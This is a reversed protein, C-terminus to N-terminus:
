EGGHERIAAIAPENVWRPEPFMRAFGIPTV